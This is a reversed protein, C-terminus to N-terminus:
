SSAARKIAERSQLWTFANLHTGEGPRGHRQGAHFERLRFAASNRQLRVRPGPLEQGSHGSDGSVGVRDGDEGQCDEHDHAEVGSWTTSGSGGDTMITM